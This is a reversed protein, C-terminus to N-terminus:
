LSRGLLSVDVRGVRRRDIHSMMNYLRPTSSPSRGLFVATYQVLQQLKPDDFFQAVYGDLSGWLQLGVTGSDFVDRGIWDRLRPPDLYVFKEM